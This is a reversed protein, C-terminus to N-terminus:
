AQLEIDGTAWTCCSYVFGAERSKADITCEGDVKVQGACKVECEGCSGVRCSYDIEIGHAEALELLSIHEDTQVTIGSRVFTVQHIPGELHLTKEISGSGQASRGSGFSESHLRSLDFGLDHLTQRVAKFFPEPGCLFVDREDLDPVFMRLMEGRVRGRFGHWSETGLWDSTLTIAVDFRRSRASLLELEKRFIIDPPSKFSALLKVDVDAGTDSMWRSMSVIPTIGSGAGIFLMKSNPYEFCSFKGTPGKITLRQGLKVHDCFWNSVLGGPVRKITIELLHPRSPSSSMSYSRKVEKGDIELIFTVFQGPHYSFLLPQEGALRFTKTDHTEDIIDVVKVLTQGESWLGITSRSEILNALVPSAPPAPPTYFFRPIEAIDELAADDFSEPRPVGRLVFELRYGPLDVCAGDWMSIPSRSAFKKRDLLVGADQDLTRLYLHRGSKILALHYMGMKHSELQLDANPHRGVLTETDLRDVAIEHIVRGNQIVIMRDGPDQDRPVGEFLRKMWLEAQSTLPTNQPATLDHKRRGLSPRAHRDHFFTRGWFKNEELTSDDM